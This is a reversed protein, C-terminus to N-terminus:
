PVGDLRSGQKDGVPHVHETLDSWVRTRVHALTVEKLGVLL